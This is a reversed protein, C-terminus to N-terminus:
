RSLPSGVNCKNENKIKEMNLAYLTYKGQLVESLWGASALEEIYVSAIVPDIACAESINDLSHACANYCNRKKILINLLRTKECSLKGYPLPDIDNLHSRLMDLELSLENIRKLKEDRTLSLIEDLNLLM